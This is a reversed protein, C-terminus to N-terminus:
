RVRPARLVLVNGALVAALGLAAPMTWRYGEFATSVALAVVPFELGKAKHVTMLKVGGTQQELLPAAVDAVPEIPFVRPLPFLYEIETKSRLHHHRLWEELLFTFPTEPWYYIRIAKRAKLREM